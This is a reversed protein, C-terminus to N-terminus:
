VNTVNHSNTDRTTCKQFEVSCQYIVILRTVVHEEREPGGSEMYGALGTFWVACLGFLHEDIRFSLFNFSIESHM